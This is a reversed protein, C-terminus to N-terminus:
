EQKQKKADGVAALAYEVLASFKEAGLFGAQDAVIVDDGFDTLYQGSLDGAAAGCVLDGDVFRKSV